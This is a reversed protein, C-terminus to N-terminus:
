NPQHECIGVISNCANKWIRADTLHFVKTVISSKLKQLSMSKALNGIISICKKKCLEHSQLLRDSSQTGEKLLM